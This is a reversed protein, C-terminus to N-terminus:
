CSQCGPTPRSALPQFRQECGGRAVDSGVGGIAYQEIEAPDFVDAVPASDTNSPPGDYLADVDPCCCWRMPTFWIRWWRQWDTTTM